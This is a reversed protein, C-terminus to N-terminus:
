HSKKSKELPRRVNSKKLTQVTTALKMIDQKSTPGAASKKTQHRERNQNATDGM